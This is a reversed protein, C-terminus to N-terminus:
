FTQGIAFYWRGSPTRQRSTLPMGFDIRLLAFPSAIRLGVGAGADLNTFSVDSVRPFVNGADIFGVGRVWKYLPFRVEQNLLANNCSDDRARVLGM